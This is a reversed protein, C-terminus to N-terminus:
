TLGASVRAAIGRFFRPNRESWVFDPLSRFSTPPSSALATSPNLTAVAAAQRFATADQTAHYYLADNEIWQSV